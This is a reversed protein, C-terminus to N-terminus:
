LSLKVKSKVKNTYRANKIVALTTSQTEPAHSPFLMKWHFDILEAYEIPHSSGPQMVETQVM